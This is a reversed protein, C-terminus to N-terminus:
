ALKGRDRYSTPMIGKLPLSQRWVPSKHLHKTGNYKAPLYKGFTTSFILEGYSTGFKRINPDPAKKYDATMINVAPATLQVWPARCSQSVILM